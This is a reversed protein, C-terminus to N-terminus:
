STCERQLPWTEPTVANKRAEYPLEESRAGFQDWLVQPNSVQDSNVGFFDNLSEVPPLLATSTKDYFGIHSNDAKIICTPGAAISCDTPSNNPPSALNADLWPGVNLKPTSSIASAVLDWGLFNMLDHDNSSVENIHGIVLVKLFADAGTLDSGDPASPAWDGLDAGHASNTNWYFYPDSGNDIAFYAPQV